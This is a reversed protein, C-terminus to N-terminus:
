TNPSHSWGPTRIFVDGYYVVAVVAIFQGIFKVYHGLERSDDWLGFVLLVFAGFLYAETAQNLPVWLLISILSGVVIGIGGVRPTPITHVKRPDPHDVMGLRPALRIMLPILAVSIVLATFFIFLNSV